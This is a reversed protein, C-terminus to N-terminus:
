EVCLRKRHSEHVCERQKMGLLGGAWLQCHGDGAIMCWLGLFFCWAEFGVQAKARM